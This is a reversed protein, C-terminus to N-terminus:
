IIMPPRVAEVDSRSAFLTWSLVTRVDALHQDAFQKLQETRSAWAADLM